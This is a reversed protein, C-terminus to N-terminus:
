LSMEATISGHPQSFIRSSDGEALLEHFLVEPHPHGLVALGGSLIQEPGEVLGESQVSRVIWRQDGQHLTIGRLSFRGDGVSQVRVWRAQELSDLPFTYTLEDASTPQAATSAFEIVCARGRDSFEQGDASSSIVMM